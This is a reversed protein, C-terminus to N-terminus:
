SGPTAFILQDKSYSDTFHMGKALLAKKVIEAEAETELTFILFQKDKLKEPFIWGVLTTWTTRLGQFSIKRGTSLPAKRVLSKSVNKLELVMLELEPNCNWHINSPLIKNFYVADSQIGKLFVKPSINTFDPEDYKFFENADRTDFRALGSVDCLYRRVNEPFNL